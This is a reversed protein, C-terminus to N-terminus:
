WHLCQSNAGSTVRPHSGANFSVGRGGIAALQEIDGKLDFFDVGDSSNAWNEPERRGWLAGGIRVSQDVGESSRTFCQGYEFLRISQSQRAVNGRVADLLGPVPEDAYCIARGVDSERDGGALGGPVFLDHHSPSVFSYTIAEQYGLDVLCRRLDHDSAHDRAVHKLTLDTIPARSGIRNYGYVRCVEEVLDEEIEIDFRHSPATVSWGDGNAVPNLDLRVFIDNVVEDDIPEGVLAHLRERRLEVQKPEPLHDASVAEM